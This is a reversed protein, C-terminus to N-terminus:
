IPKSIFFLRKMLCVMKLLTNVFIIKIILSICTYQSLYLALSASKLAPTSQQNTFQTHYDTRRGTIIGWM